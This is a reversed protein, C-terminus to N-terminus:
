PHDARKAQKRYQAAQDPKGWSEYLGALGDAAEATEKKGEGRKVRLAEYGKLLLPEAEQFRKQVTLCRGLLVQTFGVGWHSAPLTHERRDLASRLLREGEAATGSECLVRGLGAESAAIQEPGAGPAEERIKLAARFNKEAETRQNRL